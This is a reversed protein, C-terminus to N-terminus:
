GSSKRGKRAEARAHQLAEYAMASRVRLAELEPSGRRPQGEDFWKNMLAESAVKYADLAAKIAPINREDKNEPHVSM